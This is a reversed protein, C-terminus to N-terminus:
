DEDFSPYRHSAILALHDKKIEAVHGSLHLTQHGRFTRRHFDRFLCIALACNRNGRRHLSSGLFIRLCVLHVAADLEEDFRYLYYAGRSYQGEFNAFVGGADIFFHPECVAVEVESAFSHLAIDAKTALEDM